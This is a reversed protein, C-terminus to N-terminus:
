VFSTLGEIAVKYAPFFGVVKIPSVILNKSAKNSTALNQMLSIFSSPLQALYM